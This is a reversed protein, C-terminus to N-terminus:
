VYVGRADRDESTVKSTNSDLWRQLETAEAAGIRIPAGGGAMSVDASGDDAFVVGAILSARLFTTDGLKLFQM